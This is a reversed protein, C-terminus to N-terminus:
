KILKVWNLLRTLPQWNLTTKIKTIDAVSRKPENREEIHVIEGGFAEALDM